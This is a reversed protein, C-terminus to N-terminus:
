LRTVKIKSIADSAEAIGGKEAKSFHELAGDRDGSLWNYIGRFYEAHASDGAKALYEGAKDLRGAKLAAGAANTNAIEDEPYLTVAVDFVKEFEPSGIEYKSALLYLEHLSLKGPSTHFVREIEAIDSYNRVTYEIYYDSRRLAPYCNALLYKYEEPYRSKLIWEKTDPDRNEIDIIDLIEQRHSIGSALVYERLGEWNEPEFSTRIFNAPFHYLESVYDKLAETRGKALRTNNEYPSEPSAFGKISLSKIEIDGDSKLTDITSLIKGIEVRNNRYDPYIVTQSVPFDVYARGEIHRNKTAEFKPAIFIFVPNYQTYKGLPIVDEYRLDNCCGYVQRLLEMQSGDMWSEYPFAESWSWSEPMDKKKLSEDKFGDPIRKINRQYYFWRKRGYFGVTSLSATDAGNVLRPTLTVVSNGKINLDRINLDLDVNMDDGVHTLSWDTPDTMYEKLEQAGSAACLLICIASFLTKKM